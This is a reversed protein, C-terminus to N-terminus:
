AGYLAMVRGLNPLVLSAPNNMRVGSDSFVALVLLGLALVMRRLGRRGVKFMTIRRAAFLIGSDGALRSLGISNDLGHNKGLTQAVSRTTSFDRAATRIQVSISEM